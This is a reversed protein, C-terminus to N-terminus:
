ARRIHQLVVTRFELPALSSFDLIHPDDRPSGAPLSGTKPPLREGPLKRLRNAEVAHQEGFIDISFIRWCRRGAPSMRRPMAKTLCTSKWTRSVSRVPKSRRASAPTGPATALS